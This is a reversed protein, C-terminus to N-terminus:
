RGTGGPRRGSPTPAAQTPPAAGIARLAAEVRAEVAGGVARYPIGRVALDNRVAGDMFRRADESARWGDAEFPVDPDCVLVHAYRARCRDAAARVEPPCARHFVYAYYQTTLANTDVVVFRRARRLAEEELALHRRVIEVYDALPLDGGREEWLTRGAEEVYPEALREALARALTTKGTSEAGLVVVLEPSPPAPM